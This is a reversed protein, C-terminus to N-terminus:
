NRDVADTLEKRAGRDVVTIAAKKVMAAVQIAEAAFEESIIEMQKLLLFKEDDSENNKVMLWFDDMRRSLVTMDEQAEQFEELLVAYSEHDSNNALGFKAGARGYEAEIVGQVEKMLQKVTCDGRKSFDLKGRAPFPIGRTPADMTSFCQPCMFAGQGPLKNPNNCEFGCESCIYSDANDIWHAM